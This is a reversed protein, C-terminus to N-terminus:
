DGQELNQTEARPKQEAIEMVNVYFLSLITRKQQYCNIKM